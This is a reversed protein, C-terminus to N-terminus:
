QTESPASLTTPQPPIPTPARNVNGAAVIGALGALYSLLDNGADATSAAWGAPVHKLVIILGALVVTVIYMVKRVTPSDFFM